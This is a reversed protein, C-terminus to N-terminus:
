GEWWREPDLGFPNYTGSKGGEKYLLRVSVIELGKDIGKCMDYAVLAAVAAGTMAEMEVGTRSHASARCRIRLTEGELLCRVEVQDLELPHCLPILEFTRKAGMIGGLECVLPVSGKPVASEAIARAVAPTLRLVAEAVAVRRSEAKGGVDVMRPSGEESLHTFRM